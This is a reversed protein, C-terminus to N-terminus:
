QAGLGLNALILMVAVALLSVAMCSALPACIYLLLGGMLATGALRLRVRPRIAAIENATLHLSANNAPALAFTCLTAAFLVAGILFPSHLNKALILAAIMTGLSTLLCGHPTKAHYGGTRTRLFRFTYLYLFSGIWGVLMAGVPLLLLFTLSGIMRRALGYQFWEAQAPEIYHKQLFFRTVSKALTEM